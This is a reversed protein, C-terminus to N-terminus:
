SQGRAALRGALVDITTTLAANDALLKRVTERERTLDARAERAEDACRKAARQAENRENNLDILEGKLRDIEIAQDTKARQVATLKDAYVQGSDRATKLDSELGMTTAVLPGIAAAMSSHNGGECAQWRDLAPGVEQGVRKSLTQEDGM